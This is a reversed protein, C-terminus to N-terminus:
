EGRLFAERECSRLAEAAGAVVFMGVGCQVQVLGEAQFRQYVKAATLPNASGAVAHARVPPLM